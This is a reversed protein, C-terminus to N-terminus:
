GYSENSFEETDTGCARCKKLATFRACPVCLRIKMPANNDPSPSTSSLEGDAFMTLQATAKNMTSM